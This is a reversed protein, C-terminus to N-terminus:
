SWALDVSLEFGPESPRQRGAQVAALDLELTALDEVPVDLRDVPTLTAITKLYGQCRDCAFVRRAEGIKESTLYTLSAHDGNDCFPCLQWPLAWESGCRGCRLVRTRELGRSEALPPWAACVPCVGSTWGAEAVAPAFARGAALLAPLLTLQLITSEAAEPQGKLALADTLAALLSGAGATSLSLVNRLRKYLAETQPRPLALVVHHLAPQAARLRAAAGPLLPAAAEAWIPDCAAELAMDLLAIYPQLGPDAKAATNLRSRIPL